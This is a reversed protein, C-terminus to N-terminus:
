RKKGVKKKPRKPRTSKRELKALAKQLDKKAGILLHKIEEESKEIAKELKKIAQTIHFKPLDKV